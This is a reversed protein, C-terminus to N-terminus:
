LTARLEKAFTCFEDVWQKGKLRANECILGVVLDFALKILVKKLMAILNVYVSLDLMRLVTM